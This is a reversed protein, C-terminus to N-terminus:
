EHVGPAPSQLDLEVEDVLSQMHPGGVPLGTGDAQLGTRDGLEVLCHEVRESLNADLDANEGPGDLGDVRHGEVL